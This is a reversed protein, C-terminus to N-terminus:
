KNTYGLTRNALTGNYTHWSLSRCYELPYESPTYITAPKQMASLKLLFRYKSRNRENSISAQQM